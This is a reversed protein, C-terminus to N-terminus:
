SYYPSPQLLLLGNRLKKLSAVSQKLFVIALLETFTGVDPFPDTNSAVM